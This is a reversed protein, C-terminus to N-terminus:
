AAVPQPKPKLFLGIVPSNGSPKQGPLPRSPTPCTPLPRTSPTAPSGPRTTRVIVFDLLGNPHEGRDRRMVDLSWGGIAAAPVYQVNAEYIPLWDASAGLVAVSWGQQQALATFASWVECHEEPPGIPDPSVLATGHHVAFAVVANASFFLQKDDRLAFFALTDNGHTEIIRRARWGVRDWRSGASGRLARLEDAFRRPVRHSAPHTLMPDNGGFEVSGYPRQRAM